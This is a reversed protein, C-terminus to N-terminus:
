ITPTKSPSTGAGDPGLVRDKGANQAITAWDYRIELDVNLLDESDYSLEGFKVSSIWANHLKWEEVFTNDEAGLQRLVVGGM